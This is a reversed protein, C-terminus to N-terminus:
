AVPEPLPKVGPAGSGACVPVPAAGGDRRGGAALEAVWDVWAMLRSRRKEATRHEAGGAEEQQWRRGGRHGRQEVVLAADGDVAHVEVAGALELEGEDIGAPM